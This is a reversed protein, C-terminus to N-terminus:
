SGNEALARTMVYRGDALRAHVDFGFLRAWARRGV